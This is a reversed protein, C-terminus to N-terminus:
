KTTERQVIKTDLIFENDGNEAYFGKEIKSILLEASKEGMYFSPQSVSSLEPTFMSSYHLNGFGIVRVDKPVNYGLKTLAKICLMAYNDTCCFFADPMNEIKGLFNFVEQYEHEQHISKCNLIHSDDYEQNYVLHAKKFGEFRKNFVTKKITGSIYGITKNKCKILLEAAKFASQFDDIIVHAAGKIKESVNDFLVVPMGREIMKDVHTFTKTHHTFSMIVGDVVGKEFATTNEEEFKFSNRSSSIVIRYNHKRAVHDIGRCVEIFFPEDYRPIIVGIVNTKGSSLSKAIQNPRYGMEEAMAKVRKKTEPKVRPSDSIARSVTAISLRLARALDELRVNSNVKSDL